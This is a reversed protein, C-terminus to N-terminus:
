ESLNEKELNKEIKQNEELTEEKPKTAEVFLLATNLMKENETTEPIWKAFKVLDSLRLLTELEQKEKKLENDLFLDVADIIQDSTMETADIEFRISIYRRLVFTLDTYYEKIRAKQWLKEDRIRSFERMAYEYPDVVIIEEEKKNEKRKKYYRYGFYIGVIIAVILLAFFVYEAIERWNIPASYIPRIDAIDANLTDVQYPLIKLSLTNSLVSDKGDVVFAFPPIYFLASDFATVVVNQVVQLDKNDLITTDKKSLTVVELGSIITDSLVPFLVTQNENQIAELRITAQEGIRIATSDISSKVIVNGAISITSIFSILLLYFIKKMM